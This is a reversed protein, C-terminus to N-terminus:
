VYDDESRVLFYVVWAYAFLSFCLYIGWDIALTIAAVGFAVSAAMYRSDGRYRLLGYLLVPWTVLLSVVALWFINDEASDEEEVADNVNSLKWLIFLELM